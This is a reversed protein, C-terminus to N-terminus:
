HLQIFILTLLTILTSPLFVLLHHGPVTILSRITWDETTSGALDAGAGCRLQPLVADVMLLLLDEAGVSRVAAINTVNVQGLSLPQLLVQLPLLVLPYCPPHLLQQWHLPLRLLHTHYLLRVEVLEGPLIVEVRLPLTQHALDAESRNVLVPLVQAAQEVQPLTSSFINLPHLTTSVM